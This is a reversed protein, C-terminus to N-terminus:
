RTSVNLFMTISKWHFALEKTRSLAASVRRRQRALLWIRGNPKNFKVANDLLHM